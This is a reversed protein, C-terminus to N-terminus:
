GRITVTAWELFRWAQQSWLRGGGLFARIKNSLALRADDTLSLARDVAEAFGQPSDDIAGLVINCYEPAVGPTLTTAVPKLTSLYHMLKSPFNMENGGIGSPRPNALVEAQHTLRQLTAEDVAGLYEVSPTTALRNMTETSGGRGVVILRAGQTKIYPLSDLLLDIGGWRHLAGSYLVVRSRDHITTLPPVEPVGADLYLKHTVPAHHFAWHSLFVVGASGSVGDLVNAWDATPPDHDLIVPIWPIGHKQGARRCAGAVPRWTNYSAIVDPVGSDVCFRDIARGYSRELSGERLGPLNVYSVAARPVGHFYGDSGAVRVPGRPWLRETHSAVIGIAAGADRLGGLFGEQWRSAAPALATAALSEAITFAPGLWLIKQIV